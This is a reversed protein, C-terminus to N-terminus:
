PIVSQRDLFDRVRGGKRFYRWVQSAWFSFERLAKLWAFLLGVSPDVASLLLILLFGFLSLFAGFPRSLLAQPTLGSSLDWDLIKLSGAVPENEIM